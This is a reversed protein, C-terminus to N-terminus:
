GVDGRLKRAIESIKKLRHNVGSKGVPPQAYSGLEQLSAEPYERRIKAIEQLNIPLNDLGLTQEIYEIDELHKFSAELTKSLNATECNVIRNVNNRIDKVVRIDEFKLVSNSAGMYALLDSIQDAEKVYVLYNGKRQSLRPNFGVSELWHILDEGHDSSRTVFELHYSREPNSVSGSGLFCGRIYSRVCCPQRLLDATVPYHHDFIGDGYIFQVDSLLTQAAYADNVTIRYYRNQKLQTNKIMTTEINKTYLKKLFTILRRAISANETTFYVSRIEFADIQISGCMRVLGALESIRCCTNEVSTRALEDKVQSSFSM